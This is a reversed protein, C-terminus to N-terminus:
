IWEFRIVPALAFTNELPYPPAVEWSPCGHAPDAFNQQLFRLFFLVSIDIVAESEKRKLTFHPLPPKDSIINTQILGIYYYNLSEFWFWFQHLMGLIWQLWKPRNELYIFLFYAPISTLCIACGIGTNVPDSYLSLFVMAFSTLCFVVPFILPVQPCTLVM